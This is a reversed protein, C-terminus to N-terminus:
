RPGREKGSKTLPYIVLSRVDGGEEGKRSMKQERDLSEYNVETRPGKRSLETDIVEKSTQPTEEEVSKEKRGPSSLAM